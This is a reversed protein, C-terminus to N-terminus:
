RCRRELKRIKLELFEVYSSLSSYGDITSCILNNETEPFDGRSDTCVWGTSNHLCIPSDPRNPKTVCSTALFITFFGAFIIKIKM